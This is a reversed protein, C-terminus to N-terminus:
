GPGPGARRRSAPPLRVARAKIGRTVESRTGPGMGQNHHTWRRLGHQNVRGAVQPAPRGKLFLLVGGTRRRQRRCRCRVRLGAAGPLKDAEWLCRIYEARDSGAAGARVEESAWNASGIVASQSIRVLSTVRAPDATRAGATSLTLSAGNLTSDQVHSEHRGEPQVRTMHQLPRTGAPHTRGNRLTAPMREVEGLHMLALQRDVPFTALGRNDPGKARSQRRRRSKSRSRKVGSAMGTDPVQLRPGGVM